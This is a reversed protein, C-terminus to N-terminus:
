IWDVNRGDNFLGYTFNKSAKFKIVNKCNIKIQEGTQPHRRRRSKRFNYVILGAVVGFILKPLMEDTHKSMEFWFFNDSLIIFATLSAFFLGGLIAGLFVLGSPPREYKYVLMNYWLTYVM